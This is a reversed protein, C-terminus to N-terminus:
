SYGQTTEYSVVMWELAASIIGSRRTSTVKLTTDDSATDGRTPELNAYEVRPVKFWRQVVTRGRAESREEKRGWWYSTELTATTAM